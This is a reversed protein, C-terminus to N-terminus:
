LPRAPQADFRAGTGFLDAHSRRVLEEVLACSYGSRGEPEGGYTELTRSSASTAISALVIGQEHPTSMHRIFIQDVLPNRGIWSIERDYAAFM